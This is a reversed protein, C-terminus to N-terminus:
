LHEVPPGLEVIESHLISGQAAYRGRGPAPCKPDNEPRFGALLGRAGRSERRRRERQPNSRMPPEGYRRRSSHETGVYNHDLRRGEEQALVLVRRARDTLRDFL